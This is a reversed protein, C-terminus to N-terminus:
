LRGSRLAGTAGETRLGEGEAFGLEAVAPAAALRASSAPAGAAVGDHRHRFCAHLFVAVAEKSKARALLSLGAAESAAAM